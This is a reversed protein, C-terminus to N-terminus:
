DFRKSYVAELAMHHPWFDTVARSELNDALLDLHAHWGASAGILFDGSDLRWHRLILRVKDGEESLKVSVQTPPNGQESPWSFELHHPPDFVLIECDFSAVNQDAYKEPPPSESIRSHDFEMTLTGGAHDDTKGSCFWKQRLQPDVFYQWVREIPGPLVREFVLVGAEELHGYDAM